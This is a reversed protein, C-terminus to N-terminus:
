ANANLCSKFKNTDYFWHVTGLAQSAKLYKMPKLQGCETQDQKEDALEFKTKQLSLFCCLVRFDYVYMIDGTSKVFSFQM